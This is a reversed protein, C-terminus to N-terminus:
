VCVFWVLVICVVVDMMGGFELDGIVM